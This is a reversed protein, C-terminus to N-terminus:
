HKTLPWHWHGADRARLVQQLMEDDRPPPQAQQRQQPPPRPPQPPQQQPAPNSNKWAAYEAAKKNAPAGIAHLAAVCRLKGQELAEDMFTWGQFSARASLDHM